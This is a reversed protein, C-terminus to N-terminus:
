AEGDSPTDLATLLDAVAILHGDSLVRSHTSMGRDYLAKKAQKVREDFEVQEPMAFRYHGDTDVQTDRRFRYKSVGASQVTIWVRAVATVRGWFMTDRYTAHVAVEDGVKVDAAPRKLSRYYDLGHM